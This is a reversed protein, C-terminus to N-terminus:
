PPPAPPPPRAPSPHPLSPSIRPLYPPSIRAKGLFIPSIQPLYPSIRPLYPPSIRAKGLFPIALKLRSRPTHPDLQQMKVVEAASLLGFSVRDIKQLCHPLFTSLWEEALNILQMAKSTLEGAALKLSLM